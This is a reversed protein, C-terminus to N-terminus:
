EKNLALVAHATTGSGAFSDLVLEGKQTAVKLIQNILRVPKPNNFPKSDKFLQKVIKSAEDTFGVDEGYWITTPVIGQQVESLFRKIAPVNNGDQGFWIRNDAVM